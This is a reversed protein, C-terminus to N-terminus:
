LLFDIGINWDIGMLKVIESEKLLLYNRFQFVYEYLYNVLTRKM